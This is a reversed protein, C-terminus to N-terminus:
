ERKQVKIIDIEIKLIISFDPALFAGMFIPMSCPILKKKGRLM